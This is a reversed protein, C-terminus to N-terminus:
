RKGGQIWANMGATDVGQVCMTIIDDMNVTLQLRNLMELNLKAIGLNTVFWGFAHVGAGFNFGNVFHQTYYAGMTLQVCLLIRWTIHRIRERQASDDSQWSRSECALRLLREGAAQTVAFLTTKGPTAGVSTM